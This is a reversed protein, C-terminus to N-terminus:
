LGENGVAPEEEQPQQPPLTQMSNNNDSLGVSGVTASDDITIRREIELSEGSVQDHIIYTIIYDGVPFPQDQTITLELFLETNQRYSIISGLPVDEFTLLENGNADAILFDATFNMLYQINGQDDLIQRHGFAVPEIYLVITEGPRFINNNSNDHEEYIGYAAASGPEVYTSFAINFETQNWVTLYQEKAADLTMNSITTTTANAGTAINAADSTTSTPVPTITAITAANATILEFSEFIQQVPAPLQGSTLLFAPREYFLNYGTTGNLVLLGFQRMEIGRDNDDDAVPATRYTFEVLKAPATKITQNTQVSTLNVTTDTNNVTEINRVGVAGQMFSQIYFSLFDPITINDNRASAFAPWDRLDSFKMMYINDPPQECDYTGGGGIVSLAQEQPCINAILAYGLEAEARQLTFNTNDIDEIVWGNPVQVRFGDDISEFMTTGESMTTIDEEQQQQANAIEANAFVIVAIAALGIATVPLVLLPSSRM